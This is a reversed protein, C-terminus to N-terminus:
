DKEQIEVILLANETMDVVQSLHYKLLFNSVKTYLFYM